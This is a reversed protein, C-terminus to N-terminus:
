FKWGEREAIRKLKDLTLIDIECRFTAQYGGKRKEDEERYYGYCDDDDDYKYINSDTEYIREEFVPVKRYMSSDDIIGAYINLANYTWFNDVSMGLDLKRWSCVCLHQFGPVNLLVRVAKDIEKAFRNFNEAVPLKVNMAKVYMKILAHFEDFVDKIEYPKLGKFEDADILLGYPLVNKGGNTYKSMQTIVEIKM